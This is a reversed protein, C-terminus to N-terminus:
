LTKLFGILDKRDKESLDLGFPHGIVAHVPSGFGPFGTPRYDPRTRQPDLWDELRAVSGSHQFPGRYWVGKLSPVKYYGTARRTNLALSPDTGVSIPLIDYKRLHDSPISFGAVPTLKNSTYLPPTHCLACGEGKFIAQGRAAAPGFKNPNPPPTLSYVYLALAYLQADSYRPRISTPDALKPGRPIFGGYSALFSGGQNLAAYRMLDVISRHRQLGTRDLYRRDKVGILDPVQVPVFFSVGPRAQVGPPLSGNMAAFEALTLKDFQAMTDPKVWPVHYGLLFGSRARAKFQQEDAAGVHKQIDMGDLRGLPYNSQAGKIASGDPMVRTHCTACSFEGVDVTGKKRIVYVNFPMTGDKAVPVGSKQYWTPDRVDSLTNLANFFIPANFVLKGAEIWDQETKLKAADFTAEPEQQKLWELYGPPEKGPGYIPYSKYIVMEPIRYYYDASAHIPTFRTAVLPLELSAMAEDDWMRPVRSITAPSLDHPKRQARSTVVVVAIAALAILVCALIKFLNLSM